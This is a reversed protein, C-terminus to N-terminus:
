PLAAPLSSVNIPMTVNSIFSSLKPGVSGDIFRLRQAGFGILILLLLLLLQNTIEVSM